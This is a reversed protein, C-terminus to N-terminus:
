RGRRSAYIDKPNSCCAGETGANAQANADLYAYWGARLRELGQSAPPHGAESLAQQLERYGLRSNDYTVRLRAGQVEVAAVAPLARLVEAAAPAPAGLRLSRRVTFGDNTM